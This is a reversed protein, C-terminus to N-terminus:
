WIRRLWLSCIGTSRLWVLRLARRRLSPTFRSPLFFCRATSVLTTPNATPVGSHSSLPQRPPSGAAHMRPSRSPPTTNSRLIEEVIVTPPAVFAPVNSAASSITAPILARSALPTNNSCFRTTASESDVLLCKAVAVVFCRDNRSSSARRKTAFRSYPQSSTM